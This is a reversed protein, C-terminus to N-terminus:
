IPSLPLSRVDDHYKGGLNVTYVDMGGYDAWNNTLAVILKIGVKTAANVVKDFPKIDITSTGNAWWQFVTETDGAGESGYKPLGNPDYTRNKDNFGWTRFVRLGADKAATM